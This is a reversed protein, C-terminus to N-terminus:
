IFTEAAKKREAVKRLSRKMAYVLIDQAMDKSVQVRRYADIGIQTAASVADIGHMGLFQAIGTTTSLWRPVDPTLDLLKGLGFPLKEMAKSVAPMTNGVQSLKDIGEPMITRQAFSEVKRGLKFKSAHKVAEELYAEQSVKFVKVADKASRIVQRKQWGRRIRDVVNWLAVDRDLNVKSAGEAYAAAGVKAAKEMVEKARSYLEKARFTEALKPPSHKLEESFAHALDKSAAEKGAIFSIVPRAADKLPAVAKDLSNAARFAVNLVKNKGKDFMMYEAAQKAYNTTKITNATEKGVKWANTLRTVPEFTLADVGVKTWPIDKAKTVGLFAKGEGVIPVLSLVLSAKAKLDKFSIELHKKLHPKVTEKLGEFFGMENISRSVVAKPDM